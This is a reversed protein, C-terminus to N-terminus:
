KRGAARDMIGSVMYLGALAGLGYVWFPIDWKGPNFLDGTDKIMDNVTKKIDAAMDSLPSTDGALRLINTTARLLNQAAAMRQEVSLAKDKAQKELRVYPGAVFNEIAEALTVTANIRAQTETLDLVDPLSGVRLMEAQSRLRIRHGNLRDLAEEAQNLVAAISAETPAPAPAAGLGHFGRLHGSSVIVYPM